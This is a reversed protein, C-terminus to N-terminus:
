YKWTPGAEPQGKGYVTHKKSSVNTVECMARAVLVVTTAAAALTRPTERQTVSTGTSVQGLVGPTEPGSGLM